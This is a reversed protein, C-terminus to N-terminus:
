HAPNFTSLRDLVLADAERESSEYGTVASLFHTRDLSYLRLPTRARVTATRLVDHLLAIEGFSDGPRLKRIMRGDGIVEAEGNKIVYFRDGHDGQHFVADGTPVDISELHLALEDIEPMPLPRFM